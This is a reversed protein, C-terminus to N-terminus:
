LQSDPAPGGGLDGVAVADSGNDDSRRESSESQAQLARLLGALAILAGVSAERVPMAKNGVTAARILKWACYLSLGAIAAFAAALYFLCRGTGLLIKAIM